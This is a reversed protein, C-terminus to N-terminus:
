YTLALWGALAALKEDATWPPGIIKRMAALERDPDPIGFVRAATAILEREKYRHCSLGCAEVAQVIADRFFEGEASHIAAHSALTAELTGIPKGSSIGIGCVVPKYKALAIELVEVAMKRSQKICRDLHARAAPLDLEAAYHYPQKSGPVRSDCIEIKKRDIINPSAPSGAVAVM